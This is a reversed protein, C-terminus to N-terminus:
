AKNRDALRLFRMKLPSADAPRHVILLETHAEPEDLELFAVNERGIRALAAPVLGVGFGAAVLGVISTANDVRLDLRPSFGARICLASVHHALGVGDPDRLLIFPEEALDALRVPRKLRAALAAPVVVLLASRTFPRIRLDAPLAGAPARIIGIDLRHQELATIQDKVATEELGIRADPVSARFAFLLAPLEAELMATNVYGINIAGLEGRATRRAVGIARETQALAAEAEPLFAVGADTLAIGRGVRRLLRAGLSDELVRLQQSLAPQAIGLQEAARGVHLERAVTVFYQFRRLSM